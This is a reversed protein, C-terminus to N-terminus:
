QKGHYGSGEYDQRGGYDKRTGHPVTNYHMQTTQMMSKMQQLQTALQKQTNQVANAVHDVPAQVSTRTETHTQYQQLAVQLREVVNRVINAHNMGADEVTLNYTEITKRYFTWFFQKFGM